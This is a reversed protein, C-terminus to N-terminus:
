NYVRLWGSVGARCVLCHAEARDVAGLVVRGDGERSRKLGANEGQLVDRGRLEGGRFGEAPPIYGGISLRRAGPYGKVARTLAVNFPIRGLTREEEDGRERAAQEEEVRQIARSETAGKHMFLPACLYCLNLHCCPLLVASPARAFCLLCLQAPTDPPPDLSRYPVSPSPRSSLSSAPSVSSDDSAQIPIPQAQVEGRRTRRISDLEQGLDSLNLSM